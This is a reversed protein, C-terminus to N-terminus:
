SLVNKLPNVLYLFVTLRTAALRSTFILECGVSLSMDHHVIMEIM